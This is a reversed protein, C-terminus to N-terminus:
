GAFWGGDIVLEAGTVYSAEDSCLYLSGYAIDKPDGIRKMPIVARIEADQEPTIDALIPTQMMGPFIANARIGRTAFELAAAKTMVRVAGKTAHYSIADPSGILGYLSSINVIAANGTKLLAPVAARMGLFVGTQNIAVMRNWLEVTETELGGSQMIGANNVLTTLQGFTSVAFDVASAWDDEQSVDLKCFAATGGAGEIEKVVAEGQDAKLDAVIVHAGEAAFLKAQAAGLGQAAGSILATKGLLRAM